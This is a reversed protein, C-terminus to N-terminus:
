EIVLSRATGQSLLAVTVADQLRREVTQRLPRAGLLPHFGERLFEELAAPSVSVDHGLAHLRATERTVELACIERQVASTLRTFVLIEDLRGLFEARLTHELRRRVAQEISAPSSHTMRMAEASGLNSTFGIFHDHLAFTRGTAATIRGHWLLQLFLDLVQPHAKEIEDFLLGGDPASLLARGLLGPDDRSEGLLRAVGSRDQYESMDFTTLRGPGFVHQVATAFAATKGTGTPGTLFFSGRPRDPASLRLAGRCFAAALRPLVQDQGRIYAALHAELGRLRVLTDPDTM